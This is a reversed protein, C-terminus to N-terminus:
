KALSVSSPCKRYARPGRSPWQGPCQARRKLDLWSSFRMQWGMEWTMIGIGKWDKAWMPNDQCSRWVPGRLSAKECQGTLKMGM